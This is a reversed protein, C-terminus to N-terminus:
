LAWVEWGLGSRLTLSEISLEEVFRETGLCGVRQVLLRPVNEVGEGGVVHAHHPLQQSHRYLAERSGPVRSTEEGAHYELLSSRPLTQPM